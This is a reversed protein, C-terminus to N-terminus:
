LRKAHFEIHEGLFTAVFMNLSHCYGDLIRIQYDEQKSSGFAKKLTDMSLLDWLEDHSGTDVLTPPMRVGSNMLIECPDWSKWDGDAGCYATLADSAWPLSSISSVPSFASASKYKGPNKAALLLAGHGGMSNGTISQRTPHVHFYRQILDPLEKSVYTFMNFHKKWPEQTADLYFGAGYGLVKDTTAEPIDVDRPSTDPFVMAIQHKAAHAGFGSKMVWM